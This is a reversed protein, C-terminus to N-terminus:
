MQSLNSIPSVWEKSDTKDEQLPPEQGDHPEGINDEDEMDEEVQYESYKDQYKKRGVQEEHDEQDKEVPDEHENEDDKWHFNWKIYFEYSLHIINPFVWFINPRKRESM